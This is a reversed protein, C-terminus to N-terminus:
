FPFFPVISGASITKAEASFYILGDALSLSLLDSSGKWSLPEVQRTAASDFLIRGPWYTPRDGRNQHDKTLVAMVSQPLVSRNATPLRSEPLAEEILDTGTEKGVGEVNDAGELLRIATRVFLEFGVLSSVPNGPLGFVYCGNKNQRSQHNTSSNAMEGTDVLKVGFWIPKGPKIRVKHFLEKVGLKQLTKPVLDLLGESVGGTLLLIDSRLGQEIQRELTQADDICVPMLNTALGNRQSMATLMPGNSNRIQGRRPIQSCDVLENGTPLISVTPRRVVTVDAAGAEALLGIDTPRIRHGAPFLVQGRSFNDARESLHQHPQLQDLQIDVWAGDQDFHTKEIMVVADAGNPVPAGTMIRAAEGSAIEKEPWGGAAITEIVRLRKQGSNIDTARVAFGDMLSKRHPPSDVDSIVSRALVRGVASSLDVTEFELPSVNAVLLEFAQEIPIM